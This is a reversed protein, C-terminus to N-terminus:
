AGDDDVIAAASDDFEIDGVFISGFGSVPGSGYSGTGGTGVGGGCSVLGAGALAVLLALLGARLPRSLTSRLLNTTM